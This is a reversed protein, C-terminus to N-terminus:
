LTAIAISCQSMAIVIGCQLTAPLATKAMNHCQMAMAVDCCCFSIPWMAIHCHCQQWQFTVVIAVNHCCPSCQWQPLPLSAIAIKAISVNYHQCQFMLTAIKGNWCETNCHQTNCHCQCGIGVCILAIGVGTRHRGRLLKNTKINITTPVPCLM